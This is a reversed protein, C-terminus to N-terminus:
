EITVSLRFTSTRRSPDAQWVIIRYDGDEPLPTEWDAVGFGGELPDTDQPVDPEITLRVTDRPSTVHVRMRQGGRARLTYCFLTGTRVTGQLIATNRGRQFQVRRCNSQQAPVSSIGLLLIFSIAAALKKILTDETIKVAAALIILRIDRKMM